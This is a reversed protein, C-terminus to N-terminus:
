YFIATVVNRSMRVASSRTRSPSGARQFLQVAVPHAAIGAPVAARNCLSLRADALNAEVMTAREINGPAIDGSHLTVRDLLLRKEMGVRSGKGVAESHHAAIQM